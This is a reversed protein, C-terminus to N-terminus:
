APETWTTPNAIGGVRAICYDSRPIVMCGWDVRLLHSPKSEMEAGKLPDYVKMNGKQIGIAGDTADWRVFYISTSAGGTGETLTLCETSQDSKLGVDVLTIGAFTTFQRGFSDQTTDLLGSARLAVSLGLYLEENCYAIIKGPKDRGVFKIARHLKNILKRTTASSATVDLATGTNAANSDLFMQMRSAQYNSVLYQLGYMGKPKIVPTNTCFDATWDRAIGALVMKTQLSTESEIANEVNEIQVDVQVDDGYFKTEWTEDKTDGKVQSYGDNLNRNGGAPLTQWKKNTVSMVNRNIFPVTGMAKSERLLNKTVKELVVDKTTLAFEALTIPNEAM